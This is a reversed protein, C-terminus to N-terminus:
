FWTRQTCSNKPGQKQSQLGMVKALSSIMADFRFFKGTILGNRGDHLLKNTMLYFNPFSLGNKPVKSASAYQRAGYPKELKTDGMNKVRNITDMVKPVPVWDEERKM